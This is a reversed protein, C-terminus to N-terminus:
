FVEEARLIAGLGNQAPYKLTVTGHQDIKKCVPRTRPFWVAAILITLTLWVGFGILMGIPAGDRSDIAEGLLALVLPIAVLGVGIGFAGGVLNATWRGRKCSACEPVEVTERKQAITALIAVPILGGLLGIYVWPPVYVFQKRWPVVDQDGSCLACRRAPLRAGKPVHLFRGREVRPFAPGGGGGRGARAQAAVAPDLWENCFRCKLASSKIVENCYPCRKEGPGPTASM